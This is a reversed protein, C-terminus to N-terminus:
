AVAQGTGKAFRLVLGGALLALGIGILFMSVMGGGIESQNAASITQAAADADTATMASAFAAQGCQGILDTDGGRETLNQRCQAARAPDAEPPRVTIQMVGGILLCILGIVILLLPNKKM